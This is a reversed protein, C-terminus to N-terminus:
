NISYSMVRYMFKISLNLILGLIFTKKLYYNLWVDSQFLVM